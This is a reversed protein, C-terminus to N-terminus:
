RISTSVLVLCGRETTQAMHRTGPPMRQYDGPGLLVDGCRLDGELVLVEEPGHHFHGPATRGPEMRLLATLRNQRRDFFLTRMTIGPTETPQWVAEAALSVFSPLETKPQVPPSSPTAAAIRALLAERTRPDPTVPKVANGLGLAVPALAAVESTCVTCRAELHAEFQARADPPLAGALYLAALAAPEGLSDDHNM